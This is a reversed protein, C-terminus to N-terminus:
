ELLALLLFTDTSATWEPSHVCYYFYLLICCAPISGQRAFLQARFARGKVVRALTVQEGLM